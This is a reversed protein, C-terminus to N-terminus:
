LQYWTRRGYEKAAKKMITTIDSSTLRARHIAFGNVTGAQTSAGSRDQRAKTIRQRFRNMDRMMQDNALGGECKCSLYDNTVDRCFDPNPSVAVVGTWSGIGEDLRAAFNGDDAKLRWLYDNSGEGDDVIRFESWIHDWDLPVITRISVFGFYSALDLRLDEQEGCLRGWKHPNLIIRPDRSRFWRSVAGCKPCDLVFVSPLRRPGRFWGTRVFQAEEPLPKEERLGLDSDNSVSSHPIEDPVIHEGCSQCQVPVYSTIPHDLILEWLAEKRFSDGQSKDADKRNRNDSENHCFKRLQEIADFWTAPPEGGYKTVLEHKLTEPLTHYKLAEEVRESSSVENYKDLIKHVRRRILVEAVVRYQYFKDNEIETLGSSSLETTSDIEEAIDSRRSLQIVQSELGKDIWSLSSSTLTQFSNEFIIPDSAQLNLLAMSSVMPHSPLKM